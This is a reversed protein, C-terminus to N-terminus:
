LGFGSEVTLMLVAETALWATVLSLVFLLIVAKQRDAHKWLVEFRMGLFCYFCVGFWVLFILFRLLSYTM